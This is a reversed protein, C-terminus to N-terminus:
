EYVIKSIINEIFKENKNLLLFLEKQGEDILANFIEEDSMLALIRVKIEHISLPNAYIAAGKCIESVSSNPSAIIPVRNYMAQIPPLGYGENLSPYVFIKANRFLSNLEIQSVYDMFIFNDRFQIDFNMELGKCGTLIFKVNKDILDDGLLEDFAKVARYANKIWRNGGVLLIYEHESRNEVECYINMKDFDIPCECVSIDNLSLYPYVAAISYKSHNSDTIIRKNDLMMLSSLSKKVLNDRRRSVIFRELLEKRIFLKVKSLLGIRYKYETIDNPCEIERLGHITFVFLAGNTNLESLQYPMASYIVDYSNVMILKNIDKINTCKHCILERDRCIEYVEKDLELEDNYFCEILVNCKNLEKFIMKAYESGGHFLAEPSRQTATLDFLIKRM